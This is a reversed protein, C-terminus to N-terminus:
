LSIRRLKGLLMEPTPLTRAIQKWLVGLGMATAPRKGAWATRDLIEFFRKKFKYNYDPHWPKKSGILHLIGQNFSEEAEYQSTNWQVEVGLYHDQLVINLADQDQSHLLDYMETGVRVLEEGIQHQRWADLDILMVGSNFYQLPDKLGLEHKLRDVLTEPHQRVSIDRVCAAIKGQLDIHYLEKLDSCVILDTDLYLCRSLHPLCDGIFMRAYAAKSKLYLTPRFPALKSKELSIFEIQQANSLQWSARLLQQDQASLDVGIIYINCPESSNELLSRVTVAVGWLNNADTCLAVNIMM